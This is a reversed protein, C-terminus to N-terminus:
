PSSRKLTILGVDAMRNATVTVTTDRTAYGPASVRIRRRGAAVMFDSLIGTGAPEGDV